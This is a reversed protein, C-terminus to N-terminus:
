EDHPGSRYYGDAKVDWGFQSSKGNFKIEAKGHEDTKASYDYSKGWTFVIHGASFGLGVVANTVPSGECDTVTVRFRESACGAICISLIPVLLTKTM